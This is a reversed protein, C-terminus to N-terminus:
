TILPTAISTLRVAVLFFLVIWYYCVINASPRSVNDLFSSPYLSLSGLYTGYSRRPSEFIVGM